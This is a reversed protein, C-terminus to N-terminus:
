HRASGPVTPFPAWKANDAATLLGNLANGAVQDVCVVLFTGDSLAFKIAIQLEGSVDPAPIPTGKFSVVKAAKAIEQAAIAPIRDAFEKVRAPTIM